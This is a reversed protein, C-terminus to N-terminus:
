SSRFDSSLACGAVGKWEQVLRAAALKWVGDVRQMTASVSQTVVEADVVEGTTFRFLQGDDVACEQLQATDGSVELVKVSSRAISEPVPRLALGQELNSRTENRVKELQQGTAYEALRPSDPQPPAQNVELRVQWFTQYRDVIETAPDAAVTTTTAATGPTATTTTSM